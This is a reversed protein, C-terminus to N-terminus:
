GNGFEKVKDARGTILIKAESEYYAAKVSIEGLFKKLDDIASELSSIKDEFQKVADDRTLGSIGYLQIDDDKLIGKETLEAELLAYRKKVTPNQVFVSKGFNCEPSKLIATKSLNRGGPLTYQSWNGDKYRAQIFREFASVNESGAIKGSKCNM